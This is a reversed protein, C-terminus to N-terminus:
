YRDIINRIKLIPNIVRSFRGTEIRLTSNHFNKM